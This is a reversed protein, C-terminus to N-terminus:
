HGGRELILVMDKQLALGDGRRRSCSRPAREWREMARKLIYQGWHLAPHQAGVLCQENDRNNYDGEEEM